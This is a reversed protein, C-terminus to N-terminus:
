ERIIGGSLYHIMRLWAPASGAGVKLHRQLAERAHYLRSKVTGPSIDLVTAMEAESMEEYYRLVIVARHAPSLQQIAQWLRERQEDALLAEEPTAHDAVIAPEPVPHWRQYAKAQKIAENIVIRAFWPYFPAGARLNDLSRYARILAEQLADAAADANRTVLYATRYARALFPSVIEDFSARADGASEAM